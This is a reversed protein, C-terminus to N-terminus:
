LREVGKAALAVLVALVVIGLIWVVDLM